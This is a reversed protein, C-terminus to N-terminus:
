AKVRQVSQHIEEIVSIVELPMEEPVMLARVANLHRKVELAIRASEGGVAYDKGDGGKVVDMAIGREKRYRAVTTASTHARRAVENNSLSTELFPEVRRRISDQLRKRSLNEM